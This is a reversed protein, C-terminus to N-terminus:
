KTRGTDAFRIIEVINDRIIECQLKTLELYSLTEFTLSDDNSFSCPENRRAFVARQRCMRDLHSIDIFKIKDSM